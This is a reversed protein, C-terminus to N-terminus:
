NSTLKKPKAVIITVDRDNITSGAKAMLLHSEDRLFIRLFSGKGEANGVVAALEGVSGGQGRGALDSGM